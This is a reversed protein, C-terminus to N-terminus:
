QVLRRTREEKVDEDAEDAESSFPIVFCYAWFCNKLLPTLALVTFSIRRIPTLVISFTTFSLDFLVSYLLVCLKGTKSLIILIKFVILM